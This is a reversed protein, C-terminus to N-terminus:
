CRSAAREMLIYEEPHVVWKMLIMLTKKSTTIKRLFNMSEQYWVDNM